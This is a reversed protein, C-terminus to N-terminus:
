EDNGDEAGIEDDIPGNRFADLRDPWGERMLARLAASITLGRRVHAALGDALQMKARALMENGHVASLVDDWNGLTKMEAFAEGQMAAMLLSTAIQARIQGTAFGIDFHKQVDESM